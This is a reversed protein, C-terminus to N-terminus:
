GGNEKKCVSNIYSRANMGFSSGPSIDVVKKFSNCALTKEGLKLYAIGLNYHAEDYLEFGEVAKKFEEVAEQERGLAMYLKGLENHTYVLAPNLELSKRYYEYAKDLDGKRFYAVGLSTFARDRSKYLPDSAAKSCEEIAADLNDITLYLGCLNYRAESYDPKIELAKKYLAEAEKYEKLGFYILGKILYVEPDKKAVKEAEEIEQMAQKFNQRYLSAVALAKQDEVFRSERDGEISRGACSLFLLSFILFATFTLRMGVLKQYNLFPCLGSAICM